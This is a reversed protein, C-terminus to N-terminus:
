SQTDVTWAGGSPRVRTVATGTEVPVAFVDAYRRLYAVFDGRSPFTPTGAPFALGPLRSLGRATHLVLSDYLNAWTHGVQDGRELVVHSIGACMLERSTALGAPGGGIVLVDVPTM